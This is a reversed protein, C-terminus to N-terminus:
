TTAIEFPALAAIQFLSVCQACSMSGFDTEVLQLVPLSSGVFQLLILLVVFAPLRLPLDTPQRSSFVERYDNNMDTRGIPETQSASACNAVMRITVQLPLRASLM